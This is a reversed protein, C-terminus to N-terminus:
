QVVRVARVRPIIALLSLVCISLVIVAAPVLQAEDHELDIGFCWTGLLWIDHWLGLLKWLRDDYTIRLIRGIAPLLFFLCAFSMVLPVTKQLWSAMAVVLLSLTVSLVLGYGLIGVLIGTNDRYYDMSDTLYGYETFLILAPLTTTLSILLGIALLKGIVYHWRTIRRSLYFTLGGERMDNGILMASGFVLLLMTVTSQTLMFERYAEGKGSAGQLVSDIFRVFGRPAQSAIQFKAYIMAFMFLFAFAAMALLAWFLKRRLVLMIGTRAIPWCAFWSPRLKQSWDRYLTSRLDMEAGWKRLEPERGWSLPHGRSM